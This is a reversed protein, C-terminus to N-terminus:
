GSASRRALHHQELRASPQRAELARDRRELLLEAENSAGVAGALDEEVERLHRTARRGVGEPRSDLDLEALGLIRPRALLRRRSQGEQGRAGDAELHHQGHAVRAGDLGRGLM